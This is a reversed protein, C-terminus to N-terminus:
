MCSLGRPSYLGADCLPTCNTYNSRVISADVHENSDNILAFPPAFQGPQRAFKFCDFYAKGMVDIAAAENNNGLGFSGDCIFVHRWCDFNFETIRAHSM